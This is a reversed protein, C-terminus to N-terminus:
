GGGGALDRVSDLANHTELFLAQENDNKTRYIGDVESLGLVM